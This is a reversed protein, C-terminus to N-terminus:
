RVCSSDVYTVIICGVRLTLYQKNGVDKLPIEFIM